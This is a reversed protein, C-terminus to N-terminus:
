QMGEDQYQNNHRPFPFSFVSLSRTIKRFLAVDIPAYRNTRFKSWACKEFIYLSNDMLLIWKSTREILIRQAM